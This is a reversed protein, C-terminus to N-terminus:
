RRQPQYWRLYGLLCRPLQPNWLTSVSSPMLVKSTLTGRVSCGELWASGTIESHIDSNLILSDACIQGLRRFALAIGSTILQRTTGFHLVQLASPHRSQLSIDCFFRVVRSSRAISPRAAQECTTQMSSSTTGDWHVVFKGYLDIGNSYLAVRAETKWDLAPQGHKQPTKAFFARM